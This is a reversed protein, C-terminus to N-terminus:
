TRRLLIFTYIPSAIRGDFNNAGDDLKGKWGWYLIHVYLYSFEYM